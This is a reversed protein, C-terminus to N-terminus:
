GLSGPMNLPMIIRSTTQNNGSEIELKGGMLQVLRNIIDLGRGTTKGGLLRNIEERPIEGTNIIEVVASNRRRVSRIAIQGGEKSIADTVNNLLNDFIRGL